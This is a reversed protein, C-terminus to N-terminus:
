YNLNSFRFQYGYLYKYVWYNSLENFYRHRFHSTASHCNHCIAVLCWRQCCGQGKNFDCHHVDLRQGNEKETKDCMFCKRGFYERVEERLKENFKYCYKHQTIGGKWNLGKEGRQSESNTRVPIDYAKIDRLIISNSCGVDNAIERTSKEKIIYENYLFEKSLKYRTRAIGTPRIKINYRKLRLEITGITCGIEESIERCSKLNTEYETRLWDPDINYIRSEISPSRIEIGYERLNKTITVYSCNLEKSIDSESRNNDVYQNVLWDRDIDIRKM